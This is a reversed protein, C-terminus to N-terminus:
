LFVKKMKYKIRMLFNDLSNKVSLDEIKAAYRLYLKTDNKVFKKYDNIEGVVSSKIIYPKLSEVDFIYFFKMMNKHVQELTLKNWDLICQASLSFFAFLFIKTEAPTSDNLINLFDNKSNLEIYNKLSEYTDKLLKVGGWM